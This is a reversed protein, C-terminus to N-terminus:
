YEPWGNSMDDMDEDDMGGGPLPQPPRSTATYTTKSAGSEDVQFQTLLNRLTAAQASLEEASSATQEATATNQQTVQDIQGLGQNIQGVGEAQETSATAIEAVLDAAKSVSDVIEGLSAATREAIESGREVKTGSGQILEATERAAKASRGALNRVEEAVVAFGKGHQGARAAEVAANLALLNTQFAIEDIVKIIKSIAQSSENIERMAEQMATMEDSGQRAADRAGSAIRSAEGANEANNRAQASIETVSSTIEELSSAQETAGQSLAQSSKSIEDSGSAVQQSSLSIDAVLAKLKDAMSQLAQGLADKDSAQVVDVTLNGEGIAAAEEVKGRFYTRLSTFARSIVGIEDGRRNMREMADQQEESVQPDGEAIRRTIATIANIPRSISRAVFFVIVVLLLLSGVGLYVNMWFIGNAEARITKVPIVIGMYWPTGLGGIDIPEYLFFCEEGSVPSILTQVLREDSGLVKKATTQFASDGLETINKGVFDEKPHAVMYGKHSILFAYGTGFPKIGDVMEQFTSLVFDFGTVGIFAGNRRIPVTVTAMTVGGAVDTYYPETLVPRNEDRPILYWERTLVRERSLNVGKFSSGVKYFYPSYIGSDDHWENHNRYLEDKGDLMNPDFVAQLGYFSDESRLLQKQMEDIVDRDVAEPNSAFAELVAAFSKSAVLAREIDLKVQNGFRGGMEQAVDEAAKVALNTTSTVTVTAYVVFVLAVMSCVSLMIKYMLSLKKM